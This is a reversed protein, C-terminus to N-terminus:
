FLKKNPFLLLLMVGVIPIFALNIYHLEYMIGLSIGAAFTYKLKSFKHAFYLCLVTLLSFFPVPNPNWSYRSIDIMKPSVAALVSALIAVRPNFFNKCFYYILAVTALGFIVALVAPGVPDLRFFFLFPLMLYYYIPGTFFGGVSANPGLLTWKGDVLMRKVILVDRGQDGLFQIYDGLRYFRVAAAVLLIVILWFNPNRLFRM